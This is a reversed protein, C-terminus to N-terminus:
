EERSAKRIAKLAAEAGRWGTFSLKKGTGFVAAHFFQELEAKFRPTLIIQEKVAEDSEPSLFFGDNRIVKGNEPQRAELVALARCRILCGVPTAADHLVVADPPDGDGGKTSPIFGGDFPATRCRGALSSCAAAPTM